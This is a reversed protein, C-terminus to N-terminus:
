GPPRMAPGGPTDEARAQDRRRAERRAAAARRDRLAALLKEARRAAALADREAELAHEARLLAAAEAQRQALGAELFAGYTAPADAPSEARLAAQAAAVAQQRQVLVARAEALTRRAADVEIERLRALTRLPDRPM